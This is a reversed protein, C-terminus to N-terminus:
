YSKAKIKRWDDALMGYVAHDVYHDNLFENQRLIGEMQFGLREPIARSKHNQIAANIQVRNLNWTGFVLQNIYERVSATMLGNGQFQEGLWYGISTNRNSWNISHVGITGAFLGRFWIGYHIGQNRERQHITAQIFQATDHSDRSQDVWPLFERLYHRGSDVLEFMAHADSFSLVRLEANYSLPIGQM